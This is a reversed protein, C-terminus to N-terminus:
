AATIAAKLACQVWLIRVASWALWSPDARNFVGATEPRTQHAEKTHSTHALSSVSITLTCLNGPRRNSDSKFYQAGLYGYIRAGRNALSRTHEGVDRCVASRDSGRPAVEMGTHRCHPLLGSVSQRSGLVTCRQVARAQMGGGDPTGADYGHVGGGPRRCEINVTWQFPAYAIQVRHRLMNRRLRQPQPVRPSHQQSM